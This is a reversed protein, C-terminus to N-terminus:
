ITNTTELKENAYYNAWYDEVCKFWRERGEALYEREIKDEQGPQESKVTGGGIKPIIKSKVESKSDTYEQTARIEDLKKRREKHDPISMLEEARDDRWQKPNEM